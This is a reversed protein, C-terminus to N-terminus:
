DRRHRKRSFNSSDKRTRKDTTLIPPQADLEDDILSVKPRKKKKKEGRVRPTEDSTTSILLDSPQEQSPSPIREDAHKTNSVDDDEAKHRKEKHRKAKRAAKDAEKRLRKERKQEEKDTFERQTDEECADIKGEKKTGKEPRSSIHSTTIPPETKVM